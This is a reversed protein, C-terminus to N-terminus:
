KTIVAQTYPTVKILSEPLEEGSRIWDKAAAKLTSANVTDRILDGRGTERLWEHFADRNDALVSVYLDGRLSVKGVGDVKMNQIGEQEMREPVYELRLYDYEAGIAKSQEELADKRARLEAMARIADIAPIDRYKEM